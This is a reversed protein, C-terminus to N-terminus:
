LLELKETQLGLTFTAIQKFSYSGHNTGQSIVYLDGASSTSTEILSNSGSHFIRLDSSQGCAIMDADGLGLNGFVSIGDTATSFKKSNDYFLDVAGDTRFIAINEGDPKEIQVAAGNSM